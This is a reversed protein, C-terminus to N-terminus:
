SHRLTPPSHHQKCMRGVVLGAVDHAWSVTSGVRDGQAEWVQGYLASFGPRRQRLHLILRIIHDNVKNATYKQDPSANSSALLSLSSCKSWVVSIKQKWREKGLGGIAYSITDSMACRLKRRGAKTRGQQRSVVADSRLLSPASRSYLAPTRSATAMCPSSFVTPLQATSPSM